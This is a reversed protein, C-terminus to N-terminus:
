SGNVSLIGEEKVEPVPKKIKFSNGRTKRNGALKFFKTSDM